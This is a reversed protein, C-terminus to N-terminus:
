STFASLISPSGTKLSITSKVPRMTAAEDYELKIKHLLYRMLIGVSAGM